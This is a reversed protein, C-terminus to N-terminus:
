VMLPGAWSGRGVEDIGVVVDLGQGWAEREYVLGPARYRSAPLRPALRAKPGALFSTVAGEPCCHWRARRRRTLLHASSPRSSRVASKPPPSACASPSCM